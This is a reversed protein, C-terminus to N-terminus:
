YKLLIEQLRRRRREGGARRGDRAAVRARARARAFTGNFERPRLSSREGTSISPKILALARTRQLIRKTYDRQRDKRKNRTIKRMLAGPRGTDRPVGQASPRAGRGDRRERRRCHGEEGGGAMRGRTWGSRTRRVASSESFRILVYDSASAAKAAARGSRRKNPM